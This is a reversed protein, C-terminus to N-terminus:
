VDSYSSRLYKGSIKPKPPELNFCTDAFKFFDMRELYKLVEESEPLLFTKQVSQSKLLGGIELLWVMGCPDIFTVDKLDVISSTKLHHLVGEFTDEILQNMSSVM